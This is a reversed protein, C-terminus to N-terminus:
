GHLFRVVQASRSWSHHGPSCCQTCLATPHGSAAPLWPQATGLINADESQLESPVTGQLAQQTQTSHREM